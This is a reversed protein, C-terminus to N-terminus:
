FHIYIIQLFVFFVYTKCFKNYTHWMCISWLFIWLLFKTWVTVYIVCSFVHLHYKQPFINPRMTIYITIQHKTILFSYNHGCVNLFLFTFNLFCLGSIRIDIIYILYLNTTVRSTIKHTWSDGYMQLEEGVDTKRDPGRTRNWKEKRGSKNSNFYYECWHIKRQNAGENERRKEKM